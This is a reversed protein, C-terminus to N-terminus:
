EEQNRQHQLSPQIVSNIMIDLFSSNKFRKMFCKINESIIFVINANIPGSLFNFLQKFQFYFDEDMM